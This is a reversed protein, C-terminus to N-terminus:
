IQNKRCILRIEKDTQEIEISVLNEVEFVLQKGEPTVKCIALEYIGFAFVKHNIEKTNQHFSIREYIETRFVVRQKKMMPDTAFDQLNFYCPTNHKSRLFSDQAFGSSLILM